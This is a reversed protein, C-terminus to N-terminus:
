KTLTEVYQERPAFPQGKVCKRVEEVESSKWIAPHYLEDFQLSFMSTYEKPLAQKHLKRLQAFPIELEMGQIPHTSQMILKQAIRLTFMVHNLQSATEVVERASVRFDNKNDEIWKPM